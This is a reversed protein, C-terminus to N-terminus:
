SDKKPKIIIHHETLQQSIHALRDCIKCNEGKMCRRGCTKRIHAFSPMLASSKLEAPFDFIIAELPGGWHGKTYIKHLVMQRDPPGWFELTDICDDYEEVDEPRIFFKKLASSSKICGQAVNPFARLQVGYDSAVAKARRLDFCIDEGVYVDSVGLEGLYHLQDFNAVIYGTFYPVELQEFCEQLIPDISHFNFRAIDSFCVTFNFEPYTAHIANLKLWEQTNYFRTYDQIVLITRQALHNNLYTILERDQDDYIIKVEDFNSLNVTNSFVGCYKM